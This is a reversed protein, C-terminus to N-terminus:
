TSSSRTEGCCRFLRQSILLCAPRCFVKRSKQVLCFPFSSALGCSLVRRLVQRHKPLGGSMGLFLFFHPAADELCALDERWAQRHRFFSESTYGRGGQSSLSCVAAWVAWGVHPPAVVSLRLPLVREIYFSTYPSLCSHASPSSKVSSFGRSSSSTTSLSLHLSLSALSRPGRCVSFVSALLCRVSISGEELVSFLMLIGKFGHVARSPSPASPRSCPM